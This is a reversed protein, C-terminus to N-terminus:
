DDNEELAALVQEAADQEAMRKNKGSGVKSEDLLAVQCAVMFTQDHAEGIIETVSYGPLPLGRAQMLEQLRTKSDKRTRSIERSTLRHSYLTGIVSGATALGSELFVAAILAEVVNALISARRKGGSKREGAGLNLHQGLGLDGAIDALVEGNVLNARMRSLEGETAQPYHHFLKEAIVMDLVADGLFELRENHLKGASRHTLAQELLNPDQFSYGLSSELKRRDVTM